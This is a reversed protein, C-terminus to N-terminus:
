QCKEEKKAGTQRSIKKRPVNTPRRKHYKNAAVALYDSCRQEQVCGLLDISM